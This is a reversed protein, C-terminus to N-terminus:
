NLKQLETPISRLITTPLTGPGFRPWPSIKESLNRKILFHVWHHLVVLVAVVVVVM